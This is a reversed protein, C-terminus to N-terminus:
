AKTVQVEYPTVYEGQQDLAGGQPYHAQDGNHPLGVAKVFMVFRGEAEPTVLIDVSATEGPGWPRSASEIAPYRAVVSREFGSYEAGVVRGPNILTPSQKFTHGQVAAVETSTANPFAVSVLQLDAQEGRNIATVRITFSEGLAIEPRSLSVSTVSPESRPPALSLLYTQPIVFAALALYAGAAVVALIILSKIGEQFHSGNLDRAPWCHSNSLQSGRTFAYRM